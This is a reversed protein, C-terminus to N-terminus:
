SGEASSDTFGILISLFSFSFRILIKVMLSYWFLNLLQLVLLPLFIQYRMWGPMYVGESWNWHKTSERHLFTLLIDGNVWVFVYPINPQETWVSWLIWINLYHRFYRYHLPPTLTELHMFPSSFQRGSASSYGLRM